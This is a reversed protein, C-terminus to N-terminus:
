NEISYVEFIDVKDIKKYNDIVYYNIEEVNQSFKNEQKLETNNILIITNKMKKIKDIIKKEGNKGLNGQMLLNFENKNLDLELMYYAAKPDAILVEKGKKMQDLIYGNVILMQNKSEKKIPLYKYRNSDNFLVLDTTFINQIMPLSGIILVMIMGIPHIKLTIKENLLISFLMLSPIIAILFHYVDLIPFVLSITVLCYLSIIFTDNKQKFNKIVLFCLSLTIIIITILLILFYNFNSKLFSNMGSITYNTFDDVINNTLLFLLFIILPIFCGCFRKFSNKLRSKLKEDTNFLPIVLVAMTLLLGTSQKTLICFAGLIGILFHYNKYKVELYIILLILLILFTNYSSIITASAFLLTTTLVIFTMFIFINNSNLKYFKFIKYILFFCLFSVITGSIVVVIAQDVINLLLSNLFPHLPTVVMNFDKYPLYGMAMYKAFGYNWVFDIDSLFAFYNAIFILIFIISFFIFILTKNKNLHLKM